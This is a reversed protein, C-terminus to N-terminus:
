GIHPTSTPLPVGLVAWYVPSIGVLSTQLGCLGRLSYIHLSCDQWCRSPTEKAEDKLILCFASAVLELEPSLKCM